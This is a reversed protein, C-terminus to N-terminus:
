RSKKVKRSVKKNEKRQTGNLVSMYNYYHVRIRKYISEISEMSYMIQKEQDDKSDIILRTGPIYLKSDTREMKIIYRTNIYVTDQENTYLIYRKIPILMNYGLLIM